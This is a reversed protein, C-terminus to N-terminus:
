PVTQKNAVLDNKMCYAKTITVATNCWAGVCRVGGGERMVIVVVRSTM